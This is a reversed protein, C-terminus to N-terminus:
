VYNVRQYVNCQDCSAEDLWILNFIFSKLCVANVYQRGKRGGTERRYLRGRLFDLSFIFLDIVLKSYHLVLVKIVSLPNIVWQFHKNIKCNCPRNVSAADCLAKDCMLLSCISHQLTEENATQERLM